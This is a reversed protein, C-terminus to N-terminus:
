LLKETSNVEKQIELFGRIGHSSCICCKLRTKVMGKQLKLPAALTYKPNELAATNETYWLNVGYTVKQSTKLITHKLSHFLLQSPPSLHHYGGWFKYPPWVSCIYATFSNQRESSIQFSILFNSTLGGPTLSMAHPIRLTRLLVTLGLIAPLSPTSRWSPWPFASVCILAWPLSSKLHPSATVHGQSTLWHQFNLQSWHFPSRARPLYPLASNKEKHHIARNLFLGFFNEPNTKLLGLINLLGLGYRQKNQEHFLLRNHWKWNMCSCYQKEVFCGYQDTSYCSYNTTFITRLSGSGDEDAIDALASHNGKLGKKWTKQCIVTKIEKGWSDKGWKRTPPM